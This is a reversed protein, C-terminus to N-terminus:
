VLSGGDPSWTFPLGFSADVGETTLQRLNAGTTDMIWINSSSLFAIKTGDPSYKAHRSDNTQSSIFILVSETNTRLDYAWLSDGITGGEQTVAATWYVIKTGSPHWSPFDGYAALFRRNTGSSTMLWIGCTKLGECVSENYAIWQGDPSWAPFFNRGEFTLQAVTSTDFTM